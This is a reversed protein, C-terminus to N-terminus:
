AEDARELERLSSEHLGSERIRLFTELACTEALWGLLADLSM